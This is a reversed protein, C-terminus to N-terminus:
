QESFFWRAIVGFKVFMTGASVFIYTQHEKTAPGKTPGKIIFNDSKNSLKHIDPEQFLHSILSMLHILGVATPM